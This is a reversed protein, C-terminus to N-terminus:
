ITFPFPCTSHLCDIFVWYGARFEKSLRRSCLAEWWKFVQLVSGSGSQRSVTPWYSVFWFCKSLNHRGLLNSICLIFHKSLFSNPQWVFLRTSDLNSLKTASRTSCTLEHLLRHGKALHYLQKFPQGKNWSCSCSTSLSFVKILSHIQEFLCPVSSLEDVVGGRETKKPFIQLSERLERQFVAETYFGRLHM